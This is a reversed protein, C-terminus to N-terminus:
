PASYEIEISYPTDGVEGAYPLVGIYWTSGAPLSFGWAATDIIEPYDYLSYAWYLGDSDYLLFDHDATPDDWEFTFTANTEEPVTIAFVDLPHIWGADATELTVDGHIVDTYIDLSADPLLNALGLEDVLLTVDDNLSVDNPEEESYEWGIVKPQLTDIVVVIEGRPVPVPEPPATDATDADEEVVPAATDGWDGVTDDGDGTAVQVAESSYLSGSPISANLTPWTGGLLWVQDHGETVVHDESCDDSEVQEVSWTCADECGDEVVCSETAEDYSAECGCEEEAAVCGPELECTETSEVSKIHVIEFKGVWAREVEDWALDYVSGGGVPNGRALPDQELYAGVLFEDEDPTLAGITFSYDKVSGEDLETSDISIIDIGYTTGDVVEFSTSFDGLTGDTTTSITPLPVCTETAVVQWTCEDTCGDAEVCAESGEDYSAECGCEAEVPACSYATTCEEEANDLDYIDVGLITRDRGMGQETEFGLDLGVTGSGAAVITYMDHNGEVVDEISGFEQATGTVTLERYHIMPLETPTLWSDNATEGSDAPEEFSAPAVLINGRIITTDIDEETQACGALVLFLITTNRMM